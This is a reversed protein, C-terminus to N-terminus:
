TLSLSVPIVLTFTSGEGPASKLNNALGLGMGTGQHGRSLTGDLQEFLNFIREHDKPDIGPGEDTISLHLWPSGPHAILNTDQEESVEPEDQFNASITVHGNEPSFQVANQINHLYREQKDTLGTLTSELIEAFGTIHGLPTRIEHSMGHLFQTKIRNSETLTEILTRNETVLRYHEAARQVTQILREADVPKNLYDFAGLRMADVASKRDGFGTLFVVPLDRERKRVEGLLETGSMEPMRLDTVMLEVPHNELYALAEAGSECTHTTFGGANLTESLIILIQPEDDVLLVTM